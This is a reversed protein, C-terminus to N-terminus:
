EDCVVGVFGVYVELLVVYVEDVMGLGVWLVFVLLFLKILWLGVMEVLLMCILVLECFVDCIVEYILLLMFECLVVWFGVNDICEDCLM